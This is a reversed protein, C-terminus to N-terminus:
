LTTPPRPRRSAVVAAASGAAAAEAGQLQQHDRGGRERGSGAVMGGAAAQLHRTLGEFASLQAGAQQIQQVLEAMPNDEPLGDLILESYGNIITLLNNFDHAM